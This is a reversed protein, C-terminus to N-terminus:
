MISPNSQLIPTVLTMGHRLSSDKWRNAEVRRSSLFLTEHKSSLAGYIIVVSPSIDCRSLHFELEVSGLGFATVSVTKMIYIYVYRLHTYM